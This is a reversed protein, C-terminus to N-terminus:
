VTTERSQAAVDEYEAPSLNEFFGIDQGMRPHGTGVGVIRDPEPFPFPNLIAGNVASFIVSNAGIGLALTLVVLATFGLNRTLARVGYKLNHVLTEM